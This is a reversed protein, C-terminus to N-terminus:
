VHYPGTLRMFLQIKFDGPSGKWRGKVRKEYLVKEIVEKLLRNKEEINELKHYVSLLYEVRPLLIKRENYTKDM